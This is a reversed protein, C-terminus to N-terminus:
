DLILSIKNIKGMLSWRGYAVVKDHGLPPRKRSLQSYEETSQRILCPVSAQFLLNLHPHLLILNWMIFNYRKEQMLTHKIQHKGLDMEQAHKMWGWVKETKQGSRQCTRTFAVKQFM